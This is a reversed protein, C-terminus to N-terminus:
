PLELKMMLRRRSQHPLLQRQLPFPRRAKPPPVIVVRRFRPFDWFQWFDWCDLRRTCLFLYSYSGFTPSLFSWLYRAYLKIPCLSLAMTCWFKCRDGTAVSATSSHFGNKVQSFNGSTLKFFVLLLLLLLLLSHLTVTLEQQTVPIFTVCFWFIHPLAPM